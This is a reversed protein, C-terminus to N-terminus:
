FWRSVTYIQSKLRYKRLVGDGERSGAANTNGEVTVVTTKSYNWNDIFGVHGVRKLNLFYIGFVDGQSPSPKEPLSKGNKFIVNKNPFWSPAWASKIAKINARDFVWSVFAACWAHGKPLGCVRLYAEIEPGDNNGTLEHVGIQSTYLNVVKKKINGETDGGYALLSM